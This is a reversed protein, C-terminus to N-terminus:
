KKYATIAAYMVYLEEITARTLLDTIEKILRKRAEEM